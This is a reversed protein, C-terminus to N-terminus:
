RTLKDNPCHDVIGMLDWSSFSVKLLTTKHDYEPNGISLGSFEYRRNVLWVHYIPLDRYGDWVIGGDEHLVDIIAQDEKRFWMHGSTYRVDNSDDLIELSIAAPKIEIPKGTM